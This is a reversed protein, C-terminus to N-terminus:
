PTSKYSIKYRYKIVGISQRRTEIKRKAKAERGGSGAWISAKQSLNGNLHRASISASLAALM